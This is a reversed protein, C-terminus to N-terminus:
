ECGTPGNPGNTRVNRRENSGDTWENTGERTWEGKMTRRMGRWGIDSRQAGRTTVYRLVPIYWLRDILRRIFSHCTSSQRAAFVRSQCTSVFRVMAFTETAFLCKILSEGFLIEVLEKIIPLLGSHHIGIGRELLPLIQVVAKLERDEEPMCKLANEFIERIQAKEDDTTFDLKKM